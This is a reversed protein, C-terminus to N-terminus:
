GAPKRRRTWLRSFWRRGPEAFCWYMALYQLVFTVVTLALMGYPGQWALPTRVTDVTRAGLAVAYLLRALYGGHSLRYIVVGYVLASLLMPWVASPDLWDRWDTGIDLAQQLYILAYAVWLAIVARRVPRPMAGPAAVVDAEPPAYPNHGSYM